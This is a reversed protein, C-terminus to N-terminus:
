KGHVLAYISIYSISFPLNNTQSTSQKSARERQDGDQPINLNCSPWLALHMRPSNLRSAKLNVKEKHGPKDSYPAQISFDCLM